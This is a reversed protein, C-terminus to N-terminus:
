ISKYSSNIHFSYTNTYLRDHWYEITKQDLLNLILLIIEISIGMVGQNMINKIDNKWIKIYSNLNDYIQICNLIYNVQVRIISHKMIILIRYGISKKM